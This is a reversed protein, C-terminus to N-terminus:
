DMDPIFEPPLDHFIMENRVRRLFDSTDTLTGNEILQVLHFAEEELSSQPMIRPGAYDEWLSTKVRHIYATSEGGLLWCWGDIKELLQIEYPGHPMSADNEVPDVSGQLFLPFETTIVITGPKCQRGIAASLDRVIDPKMCSSFVFACDIDGLYEYPNTFSGCAFEIPALPLYKTTCTDSSSTSSPIADADGSENNYPIHLAFQFDEGDNMGLWQRETADDDIRCSNAISVSMNHLGNLIEIGRCLKWSPHLAAATLVLRGAGSGIDCFTRNAWPTSTVGISHQQQKYDVVFDDDSTTSSSSMEMGEVFYEWSRDLLMGFFDIDFEGYTFEQPPKEGREVYKWYGDTRSRANRNMLEIPPYLADIGSIVQSYQVGSLSTANSNFNPNTEPILLCEEEGRGNDSTEHQLPQQQLYYRQRQHIPLRRTFVAGSPPDHRRRHHRRNSRRINISKIFALSTAGTLLSYGTALRVLPHTSAIANHMNNGISQKMVLDGDGMPM